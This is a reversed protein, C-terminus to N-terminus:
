IWEKGFGIDSYDSLVSETVTLGASLVSFTMEREEVNISRSGM